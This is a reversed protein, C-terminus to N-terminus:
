GLTLVFSAFLARWSTDLVPSRTESYTYSLDLWAGRRANWRLSPGLLRIKQQSGTDLTENYQARVLLDGGPFPSVNLAFNTLTAPPRDSAYVRALSGTGFFAPIPSVSVTGEVRQQESHPPAAAPGGEVDTVTYAYTGTFALKPHPNLTVSAGTLRSLTQGGSEPQILSVTANAAFSVGQYPDLRNVLTLANLTSWGTSRQTAQGSYTLAAGITPLPDVAVSSMLRFQGVHGTQDESDSRDVRATFNTIRNPRRSLALGNVLTFTAGAPDHTAQLALDYTLNLSRVLLVRASGDFNGALSSRTGRAEAAPVVVLAQVETVHISAFRPDNTVAAGLPTTVAKLYRAKTPQIRLEFRNQFPDFQPAGDPAVSTWSVNDDSQWVTWTFREWIGSPLPVDVTIGLENVETQANPFSVGMDRNRGDSPGSSATGLDLGASGSFNGDILAPNPSLTQREPLPPMPEVISLGGNPYVLTEVQGGVGVSTTRAMNHQLSYGLFVAGRDGLVKRGYTVRGTQALQQTDTGTIADQPHSWRGLYELYLGGTPRDSLRLVAEDETLDTGRGGGADFTHARGVRLNAAPLGDPKWDLTGSWSERVLAPATLPAGMVRLDTTDERRDYAAGGTLVDGTLALRGYGTWTKADLATPGQPTTGDVQAWDLLGGASARLDPWLQRDFTLRYRQDISRQEVVDTHGSPDTTFTKTSGWTPELRLTLGEARAAGALGTALLAAAARGLRRRAVSPGSM